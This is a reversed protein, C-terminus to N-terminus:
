YDSPGRLRNQPTSIVLGCYFFNQRTKEWSKYILKKKICDSKRGSCRFVTFILELVHIQPTLFRHCVVLISQFSCDCTCSIGFINNFNWSCTWLWINSSRVAASAKPQRSQCPQTNLLTESIWPNILRSIVLHGFVSLYGFSVKQTHISVHRSTQISPSVVRMTYSQNKEWQIYTAVHPLPM